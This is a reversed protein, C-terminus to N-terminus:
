EQFIECWKHIGQAQANCVWKQQAWRRQVKSLNLSLQRKLLQIGNGRM